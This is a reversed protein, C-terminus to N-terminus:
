QSLLLSMCTSAPALRMPETAATAVTNRSNRSSMECSNEQTWDSMSATLVSNMLRKRQLAQAAHPICTGTGASHLLQHGGINSGIHLLAAAPEVRGM